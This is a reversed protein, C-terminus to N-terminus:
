KLRVLAEAFKNGLDIFGESNYHWPDSYGYDDTSTVLEAKGDAAVFDAQAKRVIDGYSWVLSDEAMHSESIRGIVVPMGPSNFAERIRAIMVSLNEEYISAAYENNADSEGQMWVIGAPILSDKKGDGDIDDSSMATKVTALFHDYQNIGNGGRYDAMWCGAQGAASTDISTGGRSYKIIAINEGRSMESLRAALSLEVGFRDSYSNTIGDSRFGAGHGPELVSWIGRGDTETNDGASNGHFIMVNDIKRNLEVPLDAVLGYGDMNSQGGLYYVHYEKGGGSCSVLSVSLVVSAIFDFSKM